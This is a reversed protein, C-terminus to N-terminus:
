RVLRGALKDGKLCALLSDLSVAAVVLSLPPNNLQLFFYPRRDLELQTTGAGAVVEAADDDDATAGATCCAFLLDLTDTVRRMDCGAAKERGCSTRRERCGSMEEDGDM